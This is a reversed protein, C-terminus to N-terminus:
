WHHPTLSWYKSCKHQYMIITKKQSSLAFKEAYLHEMTNLQFFCDKENPLGELSFNEFKWCRYFSREQKFLDPPIQSPLLIDKRFPKKGRLKLCFAALPENEKIFARWAKKNRHYREVLLPLHNATDTFKSNLLYIASEFMMRVGSSTWLPGINRVKLTLHTLSHVDDSFAVESYDEKTYQLFKEIVKEAYCYHKSSTMLLPVAYSLLCIRWALRENITENFLAPDIYLLWTKLENAKFFELENLPRVSQKFDSPLNIKSVTLKLCELDIRSTKMLIVQLLVEPVGIYVQHMCDPPASLPLNRIIKFLFSPGKVGMFSNFNEERLLQLHSSHIESTRLPIYKLPLYRVREETETEILCITCGFKDLHHNMSRM